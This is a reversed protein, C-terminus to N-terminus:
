PPAGGGTKAVCRPVWCAVVFPHLGYYVPSEADGAAHGFVFLRSRFRVFNNIRGPLSGKPIGRTREM